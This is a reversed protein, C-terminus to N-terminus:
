SVAANLGRRRWERGGLTKRDIGRLFLLGSAPMRFGSALSGWTSKGSGSSGQVLVCDREAIAVSAHNVANLGRHPYRYTVDRMELLPRATPTAITVAIARLSLKGHRQWCIAWGNWHFPRAPYVRWHRV